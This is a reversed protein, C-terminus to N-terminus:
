LSTPSAQFRMQAMQSSFSNWSVWPFFLHRGLKPHLKAAHSSILLAVHVGYTTMTHVINKKMSAEVHPGPFTM